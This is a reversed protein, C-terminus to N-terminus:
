VKEEPNALRTAGPDLSESNWRSVVARRKLAVRGGAPSQGHQLDGDTRVATCLDGQMM